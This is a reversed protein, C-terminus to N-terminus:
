ELLADSVPLLRFFQDSLIYIYLLHFHICNSFSCKLKGCSEPIFLFKQIRHNGSDSIFLNGYSDFSIGRALNLKDSTSGSTNKCGVICWFGNPSSRIIRYNRHDSIFLNGDGDLIVATPSNLIISGSLGSGAVTTANSEGFRFRQIRHNGCDAVYMNLQQDIFIGNPTSLQSSSAGAMGERGAIITSSRMTGNGPNRIVIHRGDMSCYIQGLMDVFLDYCSANIYFMASGSTANPTWVEVQSKNYGNEVYINGDITVFLGRPKILNSSLIRKPVSHGENFILIQNKSATSWHISNNTDIFLAYTSGSTM